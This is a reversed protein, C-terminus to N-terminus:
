KMCVQQAYSLYANVIREESFRESIKRAEMQMRKRTEDHQLLYILREAMKNEDGVPVLYGNKGDEILESPGYDCDTAVCALGAAMAEMLANPMGEAKSSFAFIEYKKMVEIVDKSFGEFVVRKSIQLRLSLKRLDQELPGKGYIHLSAGPVFRLVQAFALFLTEWDKDSHLRGVACIADQIVLNKEKDTRPLVRPAINGIVTSKERIYAPYEDMVRKTQFIIGDCAYFFPNAILRYYWKISKPNTRQSGIIKCYQGLGTKALISFPVTTLIFSFIVDPRHELIYKHIRYIQIVKKKTKWKITLYSCDVIHIRRDIEYEIHNADFLLIIDVRIGKNVFSNALRSVMREAGGGRLSFVIFAVRM